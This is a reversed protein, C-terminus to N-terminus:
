RMKLSNDMIEVLGYASFLDLFSKRDVEKRDVEFVPQFTPLRWAITATHNWGKTSSIKMGVFGQGSSSNEYNQETTIQVRVDGFDATRLPAFTVTGTIEVRSGGIEDVDISGLIERAFIGNLKAYEGGSDRVFFNQKFRLHRSHAAVNYTWTEQFTVPCDRGWVDYSQNNARGFDPAIPKGGSECNAQLKQSLRGSSGAVITKAKVSRLAMYNETQKANLEFLRNHESESLGEIEGSCGAILFVYLLVCLLRPM